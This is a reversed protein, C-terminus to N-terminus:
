RGANGGECTAVAQEFAEAVRGILWFLADKHTGNPRGLGAARLGDSLDCLAQLQHRKFVTDLRPTPYNRVGGPGTLRLMPLEVVVTLPRVEVTGPSRPPPPGGTAETGADGRKAERKVDGSKAERKVNRRRAM